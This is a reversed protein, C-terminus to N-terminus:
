IKDRETWIPAAKARIPATRPLLHRFVALTLTEAFITSGAKGSWEVNQSLAGIAYRCAPCVTGVKLPSDATARSEVQQTQTSM